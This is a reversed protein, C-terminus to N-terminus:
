RLRAPLPVGFREAAKRLNTVTGLPLPIGDRRREETTRDEPEGAVQVRDFGDARPLARLGDITRDVHDKFGAVDTFTNIDVAAVVSNQRHRRASERGELAPLLLPNGAMLSTLSEFMMALGSGKPGGTPVLITAAAADTTPNGAKDLAWGAPLPVGKDRALM